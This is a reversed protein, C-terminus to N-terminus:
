ASSGSRLNGATSRCARPAPTEPLRPRARRYRRRPPSPPRARNRDSSRWPSRARGRGRRPARAARPPARRSPRPRAARLAANKELRERLMRLEAGAAEVGAEDIAMEGIQRLRSGFASAATTPAATSASSAGCAVSVPRSARPAIGPGGGIAKREPRLPLELEVDQHIAMRALRRDDPAVARVHAHIANRRCSPTRTSGTRRRRRPSRAPRAAGRQASSSRRVDIDVM